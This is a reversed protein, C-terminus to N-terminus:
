ARGETQTREANAASLVGATAADAPLFAELRLEAVTVDVATAFTTVTTLLRLLGHPSRLVLPVAFGLHGAGPPEEPVYRELEALLDLAREDPAALATRRLGEIVHRAWVDFNEIRPRIGQPHLALRYVNVPPDLLWPAVGEGRVLAFAANEAVLDGHREVVVAPFPLHGDLIHGIASRVPELAEEEWPTEPYVPAFGALALLSNRERLPLALAEGLRVVMGRGAQSRGSEVFSVYRQSTGARVALELQSLRSRSRYARLAQPFDM